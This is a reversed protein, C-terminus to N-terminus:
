SQGNTQYIAVKKIIRSLHSDLTTAQMKLKGRICERISDGYGICEIVAHVVESEKPTFTTVEERLREIRQQLAIREDISDFMDDMALGYNDGYDPILSENPLPFIRAKARRSYIGTGYVEGGEIQQRTWEGVTSGGTAISVFNGRHEDLAVMLCAGILGDFWERISQEEPISPTQERLRDFLLPENHIRLKWPHRLDPKEVALPFFNHYFLWEGDSVFATFHATLNGGDEDPVRFSVVKDFAFAEPPTGNELKVKLQVQEGLRVTPDGRHPWLLQVAIAPRTEGDTAHRVLYNRLLSAPIGGSALPPNAVLTGDDRREVKPRLCLTVVNWLIERLSKQEVM